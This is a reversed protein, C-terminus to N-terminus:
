ADNPQVIAKEALINVDFRQRAKILRDNTIANGTNNMFGIQRNTFLIWIRLHLMCIRMHMPRSQATHSKRFLPFLIYIPPSPVLSCFRFRVNSQQLPSAECILRAAVCSRACSLGNVSCSKGISNGNEIECEPLM